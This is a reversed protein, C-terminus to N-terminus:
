SEGGRGGVDHPRFGRTSYSICISGSSGNNGRVKGIWFIPRGVAPAVLRYSGGFYIRGGGGGLGVHAGLGDVLGLAEFAFM